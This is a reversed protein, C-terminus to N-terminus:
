GLLDDLLRRGVLLLLLLVVIGKCEAESVHATWGALQAAGVTALARRPRRWYLRFKLCNEFVVATEELSVFDRVVPRVGGVLPHKTDLLDLEVRHARRISLGGM